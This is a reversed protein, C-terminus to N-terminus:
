KVSVEVAWDSDVGDIGDYYGSGTKTTVKVLHDSSPDERVNGTRSSIIWDMAVVHQLMLLMTCSWCEKEAWAVGSGM